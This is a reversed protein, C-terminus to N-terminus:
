IFFITFFPDLVSSFARRTERTTFDCGRGLWYHMENNGVASGM